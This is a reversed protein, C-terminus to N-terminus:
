ANVESSSVGWVDRNQLPRGFAGDQVATKLDHCAKSMAQWNRQDWFREQATAIATIDKTDLAQKLRHPVIHDVVTALTVRLKGAGCQACMCLPHQRLFAKSAASWQKTYGRQQGTGRRADTTKLVKSWCPACYGDHRQTLAGCGPYRCGRYAKNRTARTAQM